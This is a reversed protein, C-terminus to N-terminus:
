LNFITLLIFALAIGFNQTTASSNLITIDNSRQTGDCDGYFADTPEAAQNCTPYNPDKLIADMAYLFLADVGKLEPVSESFVNYFAATQLIHWPLHCFFENSVQAYTITVPSGNANFETVYANIFDYFWADKDSQVNDLKNWFYILDWIRPGINSNDYDLLRYQGNDLKFVNGKHPDSHTFVVASPAKEAQEVAYDYFEQLTNFDGIGHENIHQQIFERGSTYFADNIHDGFARTNWPWDAYCFDRKMNTEAYSKRHNKAFLKAVELIDARTALGDELDGGSLFEQVIAFNLDAGSGTKVTQYIQAGIGIDSASQYANLVDDLRDDNARYFNIAQPDNYLKVLTKRESTVSNETVDYTCEFLNAQAGSFKYAFVKPTGGAVNQCIEDAKTTQEASPAAFASQIALLPFLKM